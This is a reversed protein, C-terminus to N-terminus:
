RSWPHWDEECNINALLEGSPAELPTFDISDLFKRVPLRGAELASRVTPTLSAHYAGCLPHTEGQFTSVVAPRGAERAALVQHLWDVTLGPMDCATILAWGGEQLRSLAAELGSLPGCGPYREPLAPYGLGQYRGPEGVLEASGAAQEVQAAVHVVLPRGRFSLLAKDRGMRRSRGGTLVYGRVPM